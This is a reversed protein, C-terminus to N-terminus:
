RDNNVVGLMVEDMYHDNWKRVETKRGQETFGAKTFASVSAINKAYAHASVTHLKMEEFAFRVALKITETGYGQGHCDKRGIMIGMDANSHVTSVNNLRVNGIHADDETRVVAFLHGDDKCSEIYDKISDISQESFRSELFQNIEPDNLWSLYEETADESTLARFYIREGEIVKETM